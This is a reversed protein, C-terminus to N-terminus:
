NRNSKAVTSSKRGLGEMEFKVVIIFGSGDMIQLLLLVADVERGEGESESEKVVCASGGGSDDAYPIVAGRVKLGGSRKERCGGPL